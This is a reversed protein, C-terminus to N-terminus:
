RGLPPRLRKIRQGWTGYDIRTVYPGMPTELNGLSPPAAERHISFARTWFAIVRQVLSPSLRLFAFLSLGALGLSARSQPRLALSVIKEAAREAEYIPPLPGVEHGTFNAARLYIPTNVAPPAFTCVRINPFASLEGRLSESLGVIAFKSAVYAGVFPAGVLGWGSANNILIGQKQAVFYPLVARMGHVYGLLNTEIVTRFAESPADSLSGFMMVAANNVWVDIRGFGAVATQALARVAEEDKVDMASALVEAGLAECCQAARLLPEANRAALVLRAGRKAFALATALGIGSSAGTIVVVKGALSREM